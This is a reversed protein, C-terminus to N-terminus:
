VKGMKSLRGAAKKCQHFMNYYKQRIALYVIVLYFICIISMKLVIRSGTKEVYNFFSGKFSESTAHM